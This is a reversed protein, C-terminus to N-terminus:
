KGHLKRPGAASTLVLKSRSSSLSFGPSLSVPTPLLSVVCLPPARARQLYVWWRPLSIADKSRGKAVEQKVAKQRGTPRPAGVLGKKVWGERGGEGGGGAARSVTQKKSSEVHVCLSWINGDRYKLSSRPPRNIARGLGLVRHTTALKRNRRCSKRPYLNDRKEALFAASCQRPPSVTTRGSPSPHSRVLPM